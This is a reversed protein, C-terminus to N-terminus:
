KFYKIIFGVITIPIALSFWFIAVHDLFTKKHKLLLALMPSDMALILEISKRYTGNQKRQEIYFEQIAKTCDAISLVKEREGTEKNIANKTPIPHLHLVECTKKLDALKPM